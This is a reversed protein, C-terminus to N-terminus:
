FSFPFFTHNRIEFCVFLQVRSFPLGVSMLRGIQPRIYFKVIIM